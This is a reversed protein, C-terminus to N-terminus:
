ANLSVANKIIAALKKRFIKKSFLLSNGICEDPSINLSEFKVIANELSQLTQEKYFVGTKNEVVTELVGGSGFAIVGKGFMQAELATMGFDEEATIILAKSLSLYLALLHDSINSNFEINPKAIQKLLKLQPGNGIIRLPKGNKNFTDVAVRVKKYENLRAIILYYDGNFPDAFDKLTDDVFPQLVLSDRQYIRKIRENCNYSGAVWIDVRNKINQDYVRQFNLLPSLLKSNKDSPLGWLFRPPTHCYCIHTTEPKTIIAKAFRTTQSIVLDFNDFNFQEFAIGYFPLLPKYLSKWGPIKQLFSTIITRNKLKQSLIPHKSDYVSTYIPADPFMDSIELLVKEAGGWQVLDDHVIAIRMPYLTFPLRYVKM